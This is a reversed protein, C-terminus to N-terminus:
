IKDSTVSVDTTLESTKDVVIQDLEDIDVGRILFQAGFFRVNSNGIPERLKPDQGEVIDMEYRVEGKSADKPDRQVFLYKNRHFFMEVLHQMNLIQLLSDSVANMTFFIDVTKPVRIQDFNEPGGGDGVEPRKNISYFRNEVLEPGVLSIAPLKSIEIISEGDLTDSDYDTSEAIHINEIIQNKLERLLTRIVFTYSQEKILSPREYTFGDTVTVSGSTVLNTLVVDVAISNDGKAIFPARPLICTLLVDPLTPDPRTRVRTAKRAGFKVEVADLNAEDSIDFDTGVIVILEGGSPQRKSPTISTIVLAM